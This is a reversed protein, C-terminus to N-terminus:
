QILQLVTFVAALLLFGTFNIPWLFYTWAPWTRVLPAIVCGLALLLFLIALLGMMQLVGRLHRM